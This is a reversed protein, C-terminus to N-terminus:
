RGRQLSDRLNMPKGGAASYSGGENFVSQLLVAARATGDGAQEYVQWLVHRLFMAGMDADRDPLQLIRKTIVAGNDLLEPVRHRLPHEVAVVRPLPGLTPRVADVMQNIGRQMGLYSNPQFVVRQVHQNTM